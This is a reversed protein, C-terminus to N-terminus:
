GPSADIPSNKRGLRRRPQQMGRESRILDLMNLGNDTIWQRRARSWEACTADLREREVETLDPRCGHCTCSQPFNEWRLEDPMEAFPDGSRTRRLAM